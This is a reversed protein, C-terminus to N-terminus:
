PELLVDKAFRERAGAHGPLRGYRDLGRGLLRPPRARREVDLLGAPGPAQAQVDFAGVAHHVELTAQLDRRAHVARLPRQRAAQGGPRLPRPADRREVHRLRAVLALEHRREVGIELRAVRGRQGRQGIGRRPERPESDQHPLAPPPAVDRESALRVDLGGHAANGQAGVHAREELRVPEQHVFQGTGHRLGRWGAAAHEVQVRAHAQEGERQGGARFLHAADLDVGGRDFVRRV